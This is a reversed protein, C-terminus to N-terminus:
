LINKISAEHVCNIMFKISILEKESQWTPMAVLMGGWLRSSSTSANDTNIWLGSAVTLAKLMKQNNEM